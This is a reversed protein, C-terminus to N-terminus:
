ISRFVFKAVLLIIIATIGIILIADTRDDGTFYFAYKGQWKLIIFVGFGIILSYIVAFL